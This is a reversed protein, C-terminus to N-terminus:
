KLLFLLDCIHALINDNWQRYVRLFPVKTQHSLIEIKLGSNFLAKSQYRLVEVTSSTKEEEKEEEEEFSYNVIWEFIFYVIYEVM